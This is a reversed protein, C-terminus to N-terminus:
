LNHSWNYLRTFRDNADFIGILGDDDLHCTYIRVAERVYKLKEAISFADDYNMGSLAYKDCCAGDEYMPKGNYAMSYLNDCFDAGCGYDCCEGEVTELMWRVDSLVSELVRDSCLFREAYGIHADTEAITDWYQEDDMYVSIVEQMEDVSLAHGDTYESPLRVELGSEVCARYLSCVLFQDNIEDNVFDGTEPIADEYKHMEELSACVNVALMAIAVFGTMVISIVFRKM